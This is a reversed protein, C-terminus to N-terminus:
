QPDQRSSEPLRAGAAAGALTALSNLAAHAALPAALSGTELRLWVLAAGAAATVLVTGCVARVLLGRSASPANTRVMTAAPVVHWVGFVVSSVLMAVVHGEPRWAAYLVGRFAVEELLATGFPVRVLTQYALAGGRLHRVRRDAVRPAGWETFALALLPLALLAGLALGAGADGASLGTLGLARDDLDLATLATVTLAGTALLNAPVYANGNFSPWLNAANNYVALVLTVLIRAM